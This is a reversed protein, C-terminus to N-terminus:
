WVQAVWSLSKWLQVRFEKVRDNPLYGPYVGSFPFIHPMLPMPVGYSLITNSSKVRGALSSARYAALAADSCNTANQYVLWEFSAPFVEMFIVASVREPHESAFKLVPGGGGGWAVFIAPRPDGSTELMSLYYQSADLQNKM